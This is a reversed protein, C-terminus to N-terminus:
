HARKGARPGLAFTGQVSSAGAMGALVPADEAWEDAANAGEEGDGLGRRELLHTVRPVITALM